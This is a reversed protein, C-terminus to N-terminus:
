FVINFGLENVPQLADAISIHIDLVITANNGIEASLQRCEVCCFQYIGLPRCLKGVCLKVTDHNMQIVVCHIFRCFQQAVLINEGKVIPLGDIKIEKRKVSISVDILHRMLDSHVRGM